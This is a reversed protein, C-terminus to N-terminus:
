GRAHREAVAAVDGAAEPRALTRAAAGMTALRDPDGLLEDLAAALREGDLDGDAVIVAAGAGAMRRANFGQHDGPAGPLPVLISPVGAAALEFCTGAGARHVAVDAAAYLLDMRDEFRTRQYVLGGPVPAPARAAMEDWDREGVVHRVAVGAREAWQHAVDLTAANIRRAGLSGGAVAVVADDAPLGLAARAAARAPPSRDISRMEARVPNGTLVARPLPTDAFSVASAAAFRAALRNALGPVANQEAVIIPVRWIVAAVVCAVSAYGGVSIVVAPRRRGVLVVARVVAALLGAVAGLNQARLHRVVGRGPLLTVEFGAAPVLRSEMGRRAGVFRISWPPHGAAVLAQGVAVAPLVHGATGGGAIVAFLRQRRGPATTPRRRAGDLASM